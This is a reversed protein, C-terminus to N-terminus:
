INKQESHQLIYNLATIYDNIRSQPITVEDNIKDGDYDTVMVNRNKKNFVLNGFKLLTNDGKLRKELFDYVKKAQEININMEFISYFDIIQYFNEQKKYDIIFYKDHLIANEYYGDQIMKEGLGFSSQVFDNHKNWNDFCNRHVYSKVFYTFTSNQDSLIYPLLVSEKFSDIVKECIPCKTTKEIYFSM